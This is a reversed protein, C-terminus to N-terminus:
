YPRSTTVSKATSSSPTAEASTMSSASAREGHSLSHITPSPYADLMPPTSSNSHSHRRMRVKGGDFEDPSSLLVVMTLRSGMDKHGPEALRGGQTYTHLEICRIHMPEDPDGWEGPQSRMCSVLRQQLEGFNTRFHGGRHLYLAIHDETYAVDRSLRCLAECPEGRYKSTKTPGHAPPAQTAAAQRCQAVDEITLVNRIVRTATRETAYFGDRGTKKAKSARLCSARAHERAGSLNPDFTPVAVRARDHAAVQYQGDM